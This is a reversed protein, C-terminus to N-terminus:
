CLFLHDVRLPMIAAEPAAVGCGNGFDGKEGSIKKETMYTIASAITAGSGAFRWCLFRHIFLTFCPWCAKAEKRNFLKAQKLLM